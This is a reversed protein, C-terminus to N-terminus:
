AIMRAVKAASLVSPMIGGGYGAWHGVIHFNDIIGRLSSLNSFLDVDQAWGYAAGQSNGTYKYLTDSDAVSQYVIHGQIDPILQRLQNILKRAILDKDPKISHNNYCFPWHIIISSCGNPVVSKDILSPISIGFSMKEDKNLMAELEFSSFYGISSILDNNSLDYDLGLYVIIFSGSTKLDNIQKKKDKDLSVSDIMSNVVTKIDMDSVIHNTKIEQGKETKIGSARKNDCIIKTIGEGLYIKGGNVQIEKILANILGQVGGKVRFAGDKLYHILINAAAIASVESASLGLFNCYSSLIAQLRVDDIHDELLSKFTRNVWFQLDFGARDSLVSDNSWEYIDNMVKFVKRIGNKQKPFLNQLDNQYQEPDSPIDITLDPFLNRRMPNLEILEIGDLVKLEGLVKRLIGDKGLCGISDICADFIYGNESFSSCYGGPREEKEFIAVRIGKKALLAGCVLGGIGAGVIVVDIKEM